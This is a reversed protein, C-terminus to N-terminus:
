VQSCESKNQRFSDRFRLELCFPTFTPSNQYMPVTQHLTVTLKGEKISRCGGSLSALASAWDKGVRETGGTADGRKMKWGSERETERARESEFKGDRQRENM